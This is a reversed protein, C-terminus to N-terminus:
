LVTGNTFPPQGASWLALLENERAEMEEAEDDEIHDYGLLHLIGHVLMLNLEAEFTSDFDRAHEEAVDPAIIVDGLLVTVDEEDEPEDQVSDCEFSLVDTPADVGRYTKNLEHIENNGVLSLSLEVYAPVQEEAFVFDALKCLSELPLDRGSRNDVVVPMM